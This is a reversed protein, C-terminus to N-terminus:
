PTAADGSKAGHSALLLEINAGEFGIAPVTERLVVRDSKRVWLREESQGLDVALAWADYVGDPVTVSDESVVKVRADVRTHETPGVFVLPVSATWGSHLPIVQMLPELWYLNGLLSPVNALAVRASDRGTFTTVISDRTFDATVTADPTHLVRHMPALDSKAVYLSEALEVTRAMQRSDVVLWAPAGAFTASSLILRRYGLPQAQTTTQLRIVYTWQGPKLATAASTPVLPGAPTPPTSQAGLTTAAGLMSLLLSPIISWRYVEDEELM